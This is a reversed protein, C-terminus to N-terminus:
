TRARRTFIREVGAADLVTEAAGDAVVRGDALAITRTFASRAIDLEHLACCVSTGDEVLRALLGVVADVTSLDLGAFPEDMIMVDPQQILARALLVRQAQGGSLETVPRSALEGLGVAALADDVAARDARGPRRWWARRRGAAVVDGVAFPLDWRAGSRQPIYAIEVTTPRHHCDEAHLVVEGRAAPELGCLARLLSSKGSGNRGVIAISEGAGIDLATPHLACRHGYSV